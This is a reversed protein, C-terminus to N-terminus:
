WNNKNQTTNYIINDTNACKLSVVKLTKLDLAYESIFEGGTSSQDCKYLNM